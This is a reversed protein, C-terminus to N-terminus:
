EMRKTLPEGGKVLQHIRAMGLVEPDFGCEEFIQRSFKGKESVLIFIRKFVDTFTIGKRSVSKVYGIASLQKVEKDTFLKKSM